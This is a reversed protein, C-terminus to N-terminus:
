QKEAAPDPHRVHRELARLLIDKKVPKTLYSTAGLALVSAEEDLVSIVIIPVSTTQPIKRLERLLKLGNKGPMMLDVTIADPSLETAKRLAEDATACAVPQYGHPELYSVLLERATFEDDVILILPKERDAIIATKALPLTLTFRSGKGLESEVWIKGGHQEVLRKTIALGLGTGERVGKTTAGLQYFENFISKHEKPPIGLGTDTVSISALGEAQTVDIRIKGGDPTFKVGNSLLNYLIEKFRLRDAYVSIGRPAFSDIEISKQAGLARASSLVEVLPSTIEFAELHLELKGAEIKSLDLIENILELLHLSDQHIHNMFRKQKPNLPGELEESLLESFGLITHLPTRLEHSMSALFESKLRNAREVERNRLELEQNTASLERAFSQHMAQIKQETQKRETVDRIIVSVRMGGESKVPSLSIEVPFRVGDRRQAYLDLGSGMPRTTPHSSYASRHHEHRGRLDFPILLEVPQGLLEDRSYGFVKEAVANLLVIRGDGDVELIADPAAELLERFRGEAKAQERAERESEMLELREQESERRSTIDAVIIIKGELSGRENRLPAISFSVHLMRGDKRTCILESAQERGSHLQPDLLKSAIALPRGLAEEESWGFMQEAGRNWLRVLGNRDLAIMALPCLEVMAQLTSISQRLDGQLDPLESPEMEEIMVAEGAVSLCISVQM